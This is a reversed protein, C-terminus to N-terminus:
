AKIILALNDNNLKAYQITATKFAIVLEIKNNLLVM